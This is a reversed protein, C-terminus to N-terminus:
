FGLVHLAQADATTHNQPTRGAVADGWGSPATAEKALWPNAEVTAEIAQKIAATDSPDVGAIRQRFATSDLLRAPDANGSNLAVVSLIKAERAEAKYREAAAAPDEQQESLGLASLVAALKTAAQTAEDKNGKARNEWKRAEAKWDTPDAQQDHSEAPPAPPQPTADAPAATPESM